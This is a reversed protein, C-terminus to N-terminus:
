APIRSHARDHCEGLFDFPARRAGPMIRLCSDVGVRPPSAVVTVATLRGHQRPNSPFIGEARGAIFSLGRRYGPGAKPFGASVLFARETTAKLRTGRKLVPHAPKAEPQWDLTRFSSGLAQREPRSDPRKDPHGGVLM